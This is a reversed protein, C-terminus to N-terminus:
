DFTSSTEFNHFVQTSTSHCVNNVRASKFAFDNLILQATLYRNSCGEISHTNKALRFNM